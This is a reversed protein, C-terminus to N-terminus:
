FVSIKMIYLAAANTLATTNNAVVMKTSNYIFFPIELDM